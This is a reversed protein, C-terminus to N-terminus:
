RHFIPPSVPRAAVEAPTVVAMAPSGLDLAVIWSRAALFVVVAVPIAVWVLDTRRPPRQAALVRRSRLVAAFARAQCALVGTLVLALVVHQVVTAVEDGGGLAWWGPRLGGLM